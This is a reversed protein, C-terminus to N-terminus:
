SLRFVARPDDGFGIGLADTLEHFKKLGSDFRAVFLIWAV